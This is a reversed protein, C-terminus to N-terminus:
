EPEALGLETCTGAGHQASPFVGLRGDSLICTTLQPVPFSGNGTPPETSEFFGIRWVAACMDEALNVRQAMAPLDVPVIGGEPPTAVGTHRSSLDAASYCDSVSKETSTAQIVAITGGTLGVTLAGIAAFAGVRHRLTTRRGEQAIRAQLDHFLRDLTENTPAQADNM